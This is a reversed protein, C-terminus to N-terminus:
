NATSGVALSLWFTNHNVEAAAAQNLGSEGFQFSLQHSAVLWLQRAIRWGADLNTRHVTIRAGQAGVVFASVGAGLRLSSRLHRRFTATVGEATVPGPQGVVTTQTHQYDLAAESRASRYRFGAAVEAGVRRDTVRPGADVEFRVVPTVDRSWGLTVVHSLTIDPGVAFRRAGYRLRGEDVPGLRRRLSLGAAQVETAPHDAFQENTFAHEVTATTLVGLRYSLSEATSLRRAPFRGTELGTLTNLQGSTQAATYSANAAASLRKSATWGLDLGWAQSAARTNLEPHFRYAEADLAGQALVHLTPSRYRAGVSGSLRSIFDEDRNSPRYFLNDDYAEVLGLSGKLEVRSQAGVPLPLLAVSVM